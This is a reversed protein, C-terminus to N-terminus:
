KARFYRSVNSFVRARMHPPPARGTFNLLIILTKPHNPIDKPFIFVGLVIGHKKKLERRAVTIIIPLLFTMQNFDGDSLIAAVGILDDIWQLIM